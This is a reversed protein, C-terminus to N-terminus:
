LKMCETGLLSYTSLTTHALRLQHHTVEAAIPADMGFILLM